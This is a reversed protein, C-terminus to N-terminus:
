PTGSSMAKNLSKEEASLLNLEQSMQNYTRVQHNIERAFQNYTNVQQNYQDIKGPDTRALTEKHEKARIELREISAQLTLLQRELQQAKTEFQTFAKEYNKSLAVVAARDTFYKQYHKELAPSLKAVKTGLLSHLENSVVAPDRQRYIDVLKQLGPDPSEDFVEQLQQNLVKKEDDALEHYVAHLMEHAATTEMVGQLRQDNVELIFIGKSPSYCGLTNTKDSSGSVKCARLGTEKPEIQPNTLYFLRRGQETMRTTAALQVIQAPPQYKSLQIDDGITKGQTHWIYLGVAVPVWLYKRLTSM